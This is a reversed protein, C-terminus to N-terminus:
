TDTSLQLQEQEERCEDILRALTAEDMKTHSESESYSLDETVQMRKLHAEIKAM